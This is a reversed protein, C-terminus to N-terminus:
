KNDETISYIYDNFMKNKPNNEPIIEKIEDKRKKKNKIKILFFM